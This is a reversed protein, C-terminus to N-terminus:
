KTGGIENLLNGKNEYNGLFTLICLISIIVIFFTSTLICASCDKIININDRTYQACVVRALARM